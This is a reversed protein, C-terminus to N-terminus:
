KKFIKKTIEKVNKKRKLTKKPVEKEKLLLNKLRKQGTKRM